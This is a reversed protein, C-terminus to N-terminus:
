LHCVEVTVVISFYLVFVMMVVHAVYSAWCLLCDSVLMVQGFVLM